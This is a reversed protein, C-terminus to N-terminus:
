HFILIARAIPISTPAIYHPLVIDCYLLRTTKQWYSLFWSVFEKLGKFSGGTKTDDVKDFIKMIIVIKNRVSYQNKVFDDTQVM